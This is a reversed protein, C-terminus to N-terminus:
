ASGRCRGAGSRMATSGKPRRNWIGGTYRNEQYPEKRIGATGAKDRVLKRLEGLRAMAEPDSTSSWDVILSNLDAKISTLGGTSGVLSCRSTFDALMKGSLGAAASFQDAQRRAAGKLPRGHALGHVAELLPEFIPRNTIIQFHLKERVARAGHKKRFEKYAQAFKRVTKKAHSSRFESEKGAVTYKFQVISTRSSRDFTSGGGYYLVLDSIQVTQASIGRNDEVSLGEVAITSLDSDPWLLQLSIRAAWAEHYEHGDRSARVTDVSDRAIGRRHRGSAIKAM